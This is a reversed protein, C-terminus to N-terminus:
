GTLLGGDVALTAGNIYSSADSALFVLAPTLEDVDGTRQMPVRRQMMEALYDAPLQDTMESPFYGPALNNVRIGKRGGWQQALERTLGIIAAKTSCYAAQPLGRDTTFGLVSGINIITSGPQMVRGCAQAMWYAGNLNVDVVHRFDAPDERTAPAATSVGANNVLVDVRGFEDLTARVLAACQEPDSVDTMHTLVRRGRAAVDAAVATLRDVRRAALVVDAGADALAVAFAAGLGSSAGTVVVVKDDLRFRDLVTV